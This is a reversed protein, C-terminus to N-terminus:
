RLFVIDILLIAYSRLALPLALFDTFTADSSIASNYCLAQYIQEACTLERVGRDPLEACGTSSLGSTNM